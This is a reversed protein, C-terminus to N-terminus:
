TNLVGATRVPPALRVALARKRGLSRALWVTEHRWQGTRVGSRFQRLTQRLFQYWSMPKEEKGKRRRNLTIAHSLHFNLKCLYYLRSRRAPIHHYLRVAGTVRVGWGAAEIDDWLDQDECGGKLSEGERGLGLRMALNGSALYHRIVAARLIMGGGPPSPADAVEAPRYYRPEPGRGDGEPDNYSLCLLGLHELWGAVPREWVPSIVATVGGAAPHALTERHLSALFDPAITNDDDLLIVWEGRIARFAAERAHGIGPRPERLVRLRDGLRRAAVSRVLAAEVAPDFGNNVLLVEFDIGHRDQEALGALTQSWIAPARHSCTVFSYKM